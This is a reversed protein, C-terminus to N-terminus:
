PELSPSSDVVQLQFSSGKYSTLFTTAACIRAEDRQKCRVIAIRSEEDFLILDYPIAGGIVGYTGTLAADLIEVIIQGTVNWAGHNPSLSVSLLTYKQPHNRLRTKKKSM